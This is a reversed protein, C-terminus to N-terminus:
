TWWERYYNKFISTFTEMDRKRLEEGKEYISIISEMEKDTRPRKFDWFDYNKYYEEIDKECYEDVGLRDLCRIAAKLRQEQELTFEHHGNVYIGKHLEKLSFSLLHMTYDFDWNRWKWIIPAFLILNKIGLKVDNLFYKITYYNFKEM